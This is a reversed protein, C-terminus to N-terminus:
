GPGMLGIHAAAVWAEEPVAAPWAGQAQGLEVAQMHDDPGLGVVQPYDSQDLV